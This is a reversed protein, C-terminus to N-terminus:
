ADGKRRLSFYAFAAFYFVLWHGSFGRVENAKFAVYESSSIERILKGHSHLIFRGGEAHPTGGETAVMFLIFNLVAYPFLVAAIMVAWAPYASRIVAFSPARGFARHSALVLPGFVVIVGVHLLWLHPVQESVDAGLLAAVHVALSLCFGILAALGLMHAM